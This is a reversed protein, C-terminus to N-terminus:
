SLRYSPELLEGVFSDLQLRLGRGQLRNGLHEISVQDQSSVEDSRTDYRRSPAQLLSDGHRLMARGLLRLEGQPQGEIREARLVVAGRREIRAPLQRVSRLAPMADAPPVPAAAATQMLAALLSPTLSM